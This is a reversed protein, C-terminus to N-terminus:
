EGRSILEGNYHSKRSMISQISGLDCLIDHMIKTLRQIRNSSKQRELYMMGKEASKKLKYRMEGLRDSLKCGAMEAELTSVATFNTPNQHKLLDDKMIMALLIKQIHTIGIMPVQLRLSTYMYPIMRRFKDFCHKTSTLSLLDKMIVIDCPNNLSWSLYLEVALDLTSRFPSAPRLRQKPKQPQYWPKVGRQVFIQPM